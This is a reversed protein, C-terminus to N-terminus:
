FKLLHWKLIIAQQHLHLLQQKYNGFKKVLRDYRAPNAEFVYCNKYGPHLINLEGNPDCGIFFLVNKKPMVRYKIAFAMYLMAKGPNKIVKKANRM